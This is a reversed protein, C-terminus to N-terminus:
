SSPLPLSNLPRQELKALYNAVFQQFETLSIINDDGAIQEFTQNNVLLNRSNEPLRALLRSYERKNLGKKNDRYEMTYYLEYLYAKENEILIRKMESILDTLSEVYEEARQRNGNNSNNNDNTLDISQRIERKITDFHALQTELEVLDANLIKIRGRLVNVQRSMKNKETKLKLQSSELTANLGEVHTIENSVIEWQYINYAAMFSIVITVILIIAFAVWSSGKEELGIILCIACTLTTALLIGIFTRTQQNLRDTDDPTLRPAGIPSGTGVASSDNSTLVVTPDDKSEYPADAM